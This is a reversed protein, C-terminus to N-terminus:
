ILSICKLNQSFRVILNVLNSKKLAKDRTIFHGVEMLRKVRQFMLYATFKTHVDLVTIFDLPFQM